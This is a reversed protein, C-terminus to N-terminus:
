NLMDSELRQADAAPRNGDRGEVVSTKKNTEM